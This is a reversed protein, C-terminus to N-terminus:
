TNWIVSAIWQTTTTEPCAALSAPHTVWDWTRATPGSPLATTVVDVRHFHLDTGLVPAVAFM